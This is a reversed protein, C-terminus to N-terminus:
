PPWSRCPAPGARGPRRPPARAVRRRSRRGRRGGGPGHGGGRERPRVAPGARGGGGPRSQTSARGAVGGVAPRHAASAPSPVHPRSPWSRRPYTGRGTGPDTPAWPPGARAVEISSTSASPWRAPRDPPPWRGRRRHGGGAGRAGALSRCPRPAAGRGAARCSCPRGQGAAVFCRRWTWRPGRRRACWSSTSGHRGRRRAPRRAAGLTAGATSWSLPPVGRGGRGDAGAGLPRGALDPGAPSPSRRWRSRWRPRRWPGPWSRVAVARDSRRRRRATREAPASWCRAPAGASPSSTRCGCTAWRGACRRARRGGRAVGAAGPTPLHLVQAVPGGVVGAVLGGTLGWVMIPGAAPAALLNAPLSALPVGGFTAVLLPSVAAQAALTVALPAALWRPGPCGRARGARRGGRHGGAGAVSLRFGLSTALLPDVLVMAAVGLALARLPRHRAAWPWGSPRWRPWARPGSCRRSPGPSSRSGPWCPWRRWWAPASADAPVAGPGRDGHRLRHEPRVRGAPADPRRGPLRRDHRGAAGPRRGAHAGGAPQAPARAAVEAGAALTRRLGNAATSAPGARAGRRGRHRGGPPGAIHRHRLFREYPGPRQVSGIVTVREGALRDDLAAAASAAHWPGCGAVTSGCTSARRRRARRSGPREGAHGRGAGAGHRAPRRARGRQAPRALRGAARRRRVAAGTPRAGPRRRGGLGGGVAAPGPPWRRRRPLHGDVAGLAAAFVVLALVVAWRDSVSRRRGAVVRRARTRVDCRRRTASSSSSPRASAGCTSCTTSRHSRGTRTATPSSRRPRRRGSGRCSRWSPPRPATSTSSRATATAARATPRARAPPRGRRRVPPAEGPRLVVVQQGDVLVAALNVRALDADPAAGGAADVADIVRSGAPLRQVGPAAVAGVVHVVVEAPAPRRARAASAGTAASGAGGAAARSPLEAARRARGRRTRPPQRGPRGTAALPLELEPPAPPPALVRWGSSPWWRWWSWPSRWADRRVAPRRRPRRSPRALHAAPAPAPPDAPRRSRRPRRRRRRAPPPRARRGGAPRGVARAPRRIVAARVAISGDARGVASGPGLRHDGGRHAM